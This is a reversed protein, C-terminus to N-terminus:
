EESLMQCYIEPDHTEHPGQVAEQVSVRSFLTGDEGILESVFEPVRGRTSEGRFGLSVGSGNFSMVM